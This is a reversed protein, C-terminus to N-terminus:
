GYILPYRDPFVVHRLLYIADDKNVFNDANIDADITVPYRDPFVVHRLLYIADDKNIISDGNMDGPLAASDTSVLKVYDMCVWHGNELRGWNHASGDYVVEQIIVLNGTNLLYDALSYSTGPGIRVNVQNDIIIGTRPWQIQEPPTPDTPPPTTGSDGPPDPPTPVTGNPLFQATYVKNGNCPIVKASWGVFTYGGDKTPNPPVEVAEGLAYQKQSLITGDEHRFTVTAKEVTLPFTVSYGGYSATATTQGLNRTDCSTLMDLTLTTAGISGDSYQILLVSGDLSVPLHGQICRPDSPQSLLTIGSIGSKAPAAPPTYDTYSLCIWSGGCDGWLLEGDDYYQKITVTSGAALHGTKSYFTGPGSRVNVQNVVNATVNNLPIGKPLPVIQGNPDAWQAYLVTGSPLSGDLTEVKTGGTPASYWGAFTYVFPNGAGDVGTPIRTFTAKPARPDAATYGHIDYRVEGGNGDLYVYRYRYPYTGDTSSTYAEYQGELYLYAESLRRQILMYDTDVLSYLSMAYVLDTGSHGARVARNLASDENYTWAGGCNYTFSLLADYEYQSLSLSHRRILNNVEAEFDKLMNQLLAEAEAETIDRGTAADYTALMENPCRTGYGVSWQSNDWYARPAFGETQKLMDLFQQSATMTDAAQSQPALASLLGLTIVAALLCCLLRKKMRNRRPADTSTNYCFKKGM